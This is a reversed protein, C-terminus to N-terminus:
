EGVNTLHPHDESPAYANGRAPGKGSQNNLREEIQDLHDKVHGIENALLKTEGDIQQRLVDTQGNLRETLVAEVADTQLEVQRSIERAKDEIRTGLAGTKDDIRTGLADFRSELQDLGCKGLFALIAAGVGLLAGWDKLWGVVVRRVHGASPGRPRLVTGSERREPNGALASSGSETSSM